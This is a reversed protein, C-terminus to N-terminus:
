SPEGGKVIFIFVFLVYPSSSITHKPTTLLVFQLLFCLFLFSPKIVKVTGEDETMKIESALRIVTPLKLAVNVPLCGGM